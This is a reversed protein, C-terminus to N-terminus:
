REVRCFPESRRQIAPEDPLSVGVGATDLEDDGVVLQGAAVAPVIRLDVEAIEVGGHGSDLMGSFSLDDGDVSHRRSLCM